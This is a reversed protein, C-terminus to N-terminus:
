QSSTPQPDAQINGKFQLGFFRSCFNYIVAGVLGPIWGTATHLVSLWFISGIKSVMNAQTHFGFDLKTSLFLTWVGLPAYWVEKDAFAYVLGSFVGWFGYYVSFLRALSLPALRVISFDPV